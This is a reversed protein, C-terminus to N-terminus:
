HYFGMHRNVTNIRQIKQSQTRVFHVLDMIYISHFLQWVLYLYTGDVM